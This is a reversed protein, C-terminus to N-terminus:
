SRTPRSNRRDARPDERFMQALMLIKDAPQEKLNTLM